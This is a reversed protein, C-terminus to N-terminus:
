GNKSELAVLQKAYQENTIGLRRAVAQQSLSLTVKRAGTTRGVPAVVSASRGAGNTTQQAGNSGQHEGFFDPFVQRVRADVKQYYEDSQPDIGSDVLKKHFGLAFSTLEPDQGFWQNRAQWKIAREDVVPASPAVRQLPLPFQPPQGTPMQTPTFQRAMEARIAAQQMAETAEAVKDADGSQYAAALAKKAMTLESTASHTLVEKHIGEGKAVYQQLRQNEDWVKKAFETAAERERFAAEKARREDHAVHTLESLRKKVSESYQQAEEDGTLEEVTKGLPKRGRDEPPTDDVLEIELKPDEGPKVNTPENLEDPFRYADGQVPATAMKM